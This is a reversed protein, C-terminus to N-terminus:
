VVIQWNISYICMKWWGDVFLADLLNSSSNSSEAEEFFGNAANERRARREEIVSDDTETCYNRRGQKVPREAVVFKNGDRSREAFGAWVSWFLSCM